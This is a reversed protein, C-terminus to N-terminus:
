NYPIEDVPPPNPQTEVSTLGQMEYLPIKMGYVALFVFRIGGGMLGKALIHLGTTMRSTMLINPSKHINVTVGVDYLRRTIKAKTKLNIHTIFLKYGFEVVCIVDQM